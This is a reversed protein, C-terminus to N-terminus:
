MERMGVMGRLMKRAAPLNFNEGRQMRGDVQMRTLNLSAYMTLRTRGLDSLEAMVLKYLDRELAAVKGVLEQDQEDMM